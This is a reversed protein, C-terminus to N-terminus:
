FTIADAVEWDASVFSFTQTPSAFFAGTATTRLNNQIPITFTRERLVADASTLATVTISYNTQEDSGIIYISFAATGDDRTSTVAIETTRDTNNTGFGGVNWRTFTQAIDFRMKACTSPIQDTTDLRFMGVIRNMSCSVESTESPSFTGSHFFSHTVKENPFAIVGDTLTAAGDAKHAVAYVTYTKTTNLSLTVSGFGADTSSQHAEVVESGSVLWLDLRTAITAVDVDARTMPEEDFDFGSFNLTVTKTNEIQEEARDQSCGCLLLAGGALLLFVKKMLYHNLTTAIDGLFYRIGMGFYQGGGCKQHTLGLRSQM